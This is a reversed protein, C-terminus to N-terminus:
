VCMCYICSYLFNYDEYFGAINYYEQCFTISNHKILILIWDLNYCFVFFSFWLNAEFFFNSHYVV